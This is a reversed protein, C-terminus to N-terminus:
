EYFLADNHDDDLNDSPFEPVPHQTEGETIVALAEDLTLTPLPPAAGTSSVISLGLTTYMALLRLDSNEIPGEVPALGIPPPIDMTRHLNVYGPATSYSSVDTGMM